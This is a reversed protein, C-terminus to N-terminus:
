DIKRKYKTVILNIIIFVIAFILLIGMNILVPKIATLSIVEIEKMLENNKIYWYAPLIHAIKLVSTPLFEMPVFAGCLFASGLAIVNVIGNLAEKNTILSSVLLAITLTTFSFVLCNTLYILGRLSFLVNGVMFFGILSYLLWVILTYVFSSLLLERNLVKYNKSSVITRKQINQEHFSNLVIGIVFLIAAMISYSAFNFYNTSNSVSTTDIKSLIEVSTTSDLTDNITKIIDDVDHSTSVLSSAIKLYRDLMLEALSAQYDGTSKVKIEPNKGNLLDEQYSIPIYIIYNVDRYFIADDINDKYEKIDKLTSVRNFYKVLNDSLPTGEDQNIILVDPKSNTFNIGNDNTAMNMGGFIILLVTYLIITAKYKNLVHWFAKFVTM